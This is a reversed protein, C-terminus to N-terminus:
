FRVTTNETAATGSGDIAVIKQPEVTGGDSRGEPTLTYVGPFFYYEQWSRSLPEVGASDGRVSFGPVGDGTVAVRVLLDDFLYWETPRAKTPKHHYVTFDHTFREGNVSMTARVTARSGARWRSTLSEVSEVVIRSDAASLVDNTLFRKERDTMPRTLMAGASEADGEALYTLYQRVTDEPNTRPMDMLHVIGFVILGIIIAAIVRAKADARRQRGSVVPPPASSWGGVPTGEPGVRRACM